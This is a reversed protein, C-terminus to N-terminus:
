ACYDIRTDESDQDQDNDAQNEAAQDHLDESLDEQQQDLQQKRRRQDRSRVPKLGAISYLSDVPKIANFDDNPM